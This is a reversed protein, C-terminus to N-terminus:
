PVSAGVASSPITAYGTLEVYGQGAVLAGGVTGSVSTAGEWYAVGTSQTTVLEQDLLLPTLRLTARQSSVTVSWGSPYVGHTAPSTWTSISQSAIATPPIEVPDGSAPIYTGFTSLPRKQADRIVYLMFETNNALQISYWDWGAGALSVFNGWQHDMWATGTVALSVGHDHITGALAMRTRSYYYSFGADGYSIVGNGGHLVVPKTATLGVDFAYNSMSASLHDHGNLGKATWGDHNLSFGATSGAAPIVSNPEFGERQDYSFHGRTIDSIAFHAAYYPSLSGRLTQFFTLEFGYEHTAGSADVALMHGTYYWWETLDHHPAEDRPFSVPPLSAPTSAPAATPLTGGSAITGPVGCGSLLTAVLVLSAAVSRLRLVRVRRNAAILHRM